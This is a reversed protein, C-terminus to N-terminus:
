LYIFDIKKQLVELAGVESREGVEFTRECFAACVVSRECKKLFDTSVM